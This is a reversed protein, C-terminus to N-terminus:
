CPVPRWRRRRASGKTSVGGSGTPPPRRRGGRPGRGASGSPGSCPRSATTGRPRRRWTGSPRGPSRRSVAGPWGRTTDNSAAGSGGAAAPPCAVPVGAEACAALARDLDFGHTDFEVVGSELRTLCGYLSENRRRDGFRNIEDPLYLTTGDTCPGRGKRGKLASLAEVRAPRGLRAQLYRDLRHRVEDLPVATRLAEFARRGAGSSLSLFRRAARGDEGARALAKDVFRRLGDPDLLHLGTRCGELFADVLDADRAGLRALAQIQARRRKEPMADLARSLSVSLERCRNYSLPASFVARLLDLYDLAAPPDPLSLLRALGELPAELLYTGKSRLVGITDFFRDAMSPTGSRLVAALHLAVIRGLAPGNAGARRVHALYDDLGAPASAALSLCGEAVAEGFHIEQSFAWLIAEVVRGVTPPPVPPSAAALADDARRALAPDLRALDKLPATTEM